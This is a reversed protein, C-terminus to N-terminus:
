VRCARLLISITNPRSLSPRRTAHSKPLYPELRTMQADTLCFHKSM